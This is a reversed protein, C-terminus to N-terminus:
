TQASLQRHSEIPLTAPLGPYACGIHPKVCSTSSAVLQSHFACNALQQRDSRDVSTRSFNPIRFCLRPRTTTTIPRTSSSSQRIQPTVGSGVNTVPKAKPDSVLIRHNCSHIILRLSFLAASLTGTVPAVTGSSHNPGQLSSFTTLTLTFTLLASPPSSFNPGQIAEPAGPKAIGSREQPSDVSSYHNSSCHIIGWRLGLPVICIPFYM